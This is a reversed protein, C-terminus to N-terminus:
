GIYAVGEIILFAIWAGTVLCCIITIVKYWRPVEGWNM